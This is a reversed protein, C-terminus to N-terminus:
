WWGLSYWGRNAIYLQPQRGCIHLGGFKTEYYTAAVFYGAPMYGVGPSPPTLVDVWGTVRSDTVSARFRNEIHQWLSNSEWASGCINGDELLSAKGQINIAKAFSTTGDNYFKAVDGFKNLYINISSGVFALDCYNGAEKTQDMRITPNSYKSQDLFSISTTKNTNNITLEGNVTGGSKSIYNTDLNAIEEREDATMIKADDAEKIKDASLAAFMNQVESKTFFDTSAVIEWGTSLYKKLVEPQESTDLWLAGLKIDGPPETASAGYYTTSFDNWKKEIKAEAANIKGLSDDVSNKSTNIQDLLNTVTKATDVVTTKDTAIQAATASINTESTAANNAAETAKDAKEQASVLLGDITSKSASIQDNIANNKEIAEDFEPKLAKVKDAITQTKSLCDAAVTESNKAESAANNAEAASNSAEVASNSTASAADEAAKQANIAKTNSTAADTASKLAEEAAKQVDTLAQSVKNSQGDIATKIADIDSKLVQNAQYNDAVSKEATETKDALTTVNTEIATIKNYVDVVNGADTATQTASAKADIASAQANVASSKAADRAQRVEDIAADAEAKSSRIETLAPNTVDNIAKESKTALEVLSKAADAVDKTAADKIAQTDAKVQDAQQYYSYTSDRFKSAQDAQTEAKKLSDAAEAASAKARDLIALMEPTVTGTDGKDGKEGHTGQPGQETLEIIVDPQAEIGIPSGYFVSAENSNM